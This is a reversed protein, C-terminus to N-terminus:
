QTLPKILQDSFLTNPDIPQKLLNQQKMIESMRQAVRVLIPDAKSLMQQNRNLDPFQIGQLSELYQEPTLDQTAAVLRAAEQPYDQAYRGARFWGEVLTELSKQHSNLTDTRVILIDVIEGPIQSSDFLQKAGGAVLRSRNPDYTVLADVKGKQYAEEQDLTELPVIKVDKPSLGVQELVRNLMYAGLPTIEVGIRQGKLRDLSSISPKALLADAGHSSDLVLVVRATPDNEALRLAESMTACLVELEGNQFAQFMLAGSPYELLRVPIDGYYDLKEALYFNATGAWKPLAVRLPYIPEGVCSTLVIVSTTLLALFVTWVRRWRWSDVFHFLSIYSMHQPCRM